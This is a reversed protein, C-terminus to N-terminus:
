IHSVKSNIPIFFRPLGLSMDGSLIQWLWHPVRRKVAQRPRHQDMMSAGFLM